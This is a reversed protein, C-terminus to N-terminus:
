IIIIINNKNIKKLDLFVASHLKWQPKCAVQCGLFDNLDFKGLREILLENTSESVM